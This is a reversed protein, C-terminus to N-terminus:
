LNNDTFIPSSVGNNTTNIPPSGNSTIIMISHVALLERFIGAGFFKVLEDLGHELLHLLAEVVHAGVDDASDLFHTCKM